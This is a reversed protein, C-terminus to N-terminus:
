GNLIYKTGPIGGAPFASLNPETGSTLGEARVDSAADLTLQFSQQTTTPSVGDGGGGGGGSSCGAGVGVLRRLRRRRPM